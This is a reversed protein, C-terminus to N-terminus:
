QPGLATAFAGRSKVGLKKAARALLVGVTSPSIGLEYAILKNSQGLAAFGAVQRERPTLARPDPADPENPRAVLYRRGDSDFRDVLSWRGAVLGRWTALAQEPDRKRLTGRAREMARVADRLATRASAATADGTAHAVKGNGELVAEGDKPGIASRLRMGAAIHAAIKAYRARARPGLKTAHRTPAFFLCGFRTPDTANLTLADAFGRSRLVREFYARAEASQEPDNEGGIRSALSAGSISHAQIVSQAAKPPMAGPNLLDQALDPAAGALAMARPTIWGNEAMHFSYAVVGDEFGLEARLADAVGGLWATDDAAELAYSAEVIRVLDTM